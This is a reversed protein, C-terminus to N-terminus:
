PGAADRVRRVAPSSFCDILWGAKEVPPGFAVVAIPGGFRIESSM